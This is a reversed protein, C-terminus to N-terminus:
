TCMMLATRCGQEHQLRADAAWHSAAAHLFEQLHCRRCCICIWLMRAFPIRCTLAKAYLVSIARVAKCTSLVRAQDYAQLAVDVDEHEACALAQGLSDADSIAMNTSCAPAAASTLSGLFLLCAAPQRHPCCPVVNLKAPM